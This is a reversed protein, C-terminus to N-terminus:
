WVRGHRSSDMVLVYELELYYDMQHKTPCWKEIDKLLLKKGAVFAENAFEGIDPNVKCFGKV